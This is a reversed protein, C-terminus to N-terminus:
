ADYVHLVKGRAARADGQLGGLGPPRPGQILRRLWPDSEAHTVVKVRFPAHQYLSCALKGPPELPCEDGVAFSIADTQRQM